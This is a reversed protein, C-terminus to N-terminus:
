GNKERRVRHYEGFLVNVKEFCERRNEVGYLEMVFELANFNIGIVDGMGATVVQTQATQYIRWAERNRPLIVPQCV